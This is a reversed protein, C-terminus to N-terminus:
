DPSKITVFVDLGDALRGIQLIDGVGASKKEKLSTFYSSASRGSGLPLRLAFKSPTTQVM